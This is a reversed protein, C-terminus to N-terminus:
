STTSTASITAGTDGNAVTDEEASITAGTDVDAVTDEEAINGDTNTFDDTESTLAAELRAVLVPKLGTLPLHRASLEIRLLACTLKRIEFPDNPDNEEGIIIQKVFCKVVNRDKKYICDDVSLPYERCRPCSCPLKATTLPWKGDLNMDGSGQVSSIQQTGEIAKMDPIETRNTFVIHKNASNSVLLNYQDKSETAFGIHTHRTTLTTNKTVREDNLLEYELLKAAKVDSGDKTLDRSLKQYCDLANACRDYKLENNLIRQKVIKGTADWSGKFRFKQAFKHIITSKSNHNSSATAVKLFHQRCKYQTPCNDTWVINMPITDKGDTKREEDYHNIIYTQCANHFVHDNKKGKSMTDGFFIWRDCDNIMTEDDLMIGGQTKRQFKVRRWNTLVFFICIVAHNNVSSNDKEMAGLDLTAGFDTCIARHVDPDGMVLDLKRMHNRWEYQAQHQRLVNLKTILRSVVERVPLVTNGLELQTNQKGQKNKGQRDAHVWELLPIVDNCEGLVKCTSMQLLAEVGCENCLNNVCDWRLFKPTRISSGVGCALEPHPLKPCCSVEVLDEVRKNLYTQWHLNKAIKHQECNCNELASKIIPRNRITKHLARMYHQVSSTHIDVCSQMVPSSVCLCRNVRFFSRSPIYYNQKKEYEKVVDSQKFLNYQEDLTKVLWVRGPHQENKITVIKRSNSDITSSCDSHCFDLVSECKLETQYSKRAQITKIAFMSANKPADELERGVKITRKGMGIARIVRRSENDSTVTYVCAQLIADKAVRASNSWNGTKRSNLYKTISDVITHNMEEKDRKDARDKYIESELRSMIQKANEIINNSLIRIVLLSLISLQRIYDQNMPNADSESWINSMMSQKKKPFQHSLFNEFSETITNNNRETNNSLSETITNNNTETNNSLSLSNYKRKTCHTNTAKSTSSQAIDDEQEDEQDLNYVDSKQRYNCYYNIEIENEIQLYSRTLRHKLVNGETALRGKTWHSSWYQSCRNRKDKLREKAKKPTRNFSLPCLKPKCLECALNHPISLTCCTSDSKIDSLLIPISSRQPKKLKRNSQRM